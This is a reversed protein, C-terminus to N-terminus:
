SVTDPDVDTRARYDIYFSCVDPLAEARREAPSRGDGKRRCDLEALEIAKAVWAGTLPGFSGNAVYRGGGTKSHFFEDERPPKGEDDDALAQAHFAWSQM